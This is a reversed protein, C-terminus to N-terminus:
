THIFIPWVAMTPIVELLIVNRFRASSCSGRGRAEIIIPVRVGTGHIMDGLVQIFEGHMIAINASTLDMSCIALIHVNVTNTFGNDGSGTTTKDKVINQMHRRGMLTKIRNMAKGQIIVYKNLKVGIEKQNLVSFHPVHEKIPRTFAADIGKWLWWGLEALQDETGDFDRSFPPM